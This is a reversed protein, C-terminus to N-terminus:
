DSLVKEVEEMTLAKRSLRRSLRFVRPSVPRRKGLEAKAVALCGKALGKLSLFVYGKRRANNLVRLVTLLLFSPFYVAPVNHWVNLIQNRAAYVMIRKYCRQSSQFHHIPKAGGLRVIYGAQLLRLCYDGEEFLYFLQERYGGLQLFVDKRLAHATGRYANVLMATDSRPAVQRVTRDMLVNVYPIAVAGIRPDDFEALTQAITNSATFAADDDISFIIPASALEVGRNRQAIYGHSVNSTELRVQPFELQIMESTGDTSGDDIVLVEIRVGVQDLSSSVARRLSEKRNKTTIVITAEANVIDMERGKAIDSTSSVTDVQWRNGLRSEVSQTDLWSGARM